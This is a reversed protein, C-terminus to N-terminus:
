VALPEFSVNRRCMFGLGQSPEACETSRLDLSLTMFCTRRM